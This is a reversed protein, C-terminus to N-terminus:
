KFKEGTRWELCVMEFLEEFGEKTLLLKNDKFEQQKIMGGGKSKIITTM